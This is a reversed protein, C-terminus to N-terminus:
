VHMGEVGLVGVEEVNRADKEKSLGSKVTSWKHEMLHELLSSNRAFRKQCYTCKILKEGVSKQSSKDIESVDAELKNSKKYEEHDVESTVTTIFEEHDKNTEYHGESEVTMACFEQDEDTEDLVESKVVITYEENSKILDNDLETKIRKTCKDDDLVTEDIIEIELNEVKETKPTIDGCEVFIKEDFEHDMAAENEIDNVLDHHNQNEKLDIEYNECIETKLSLQKKIVCQSLETNM